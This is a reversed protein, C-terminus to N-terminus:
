QDQATLDEPTERRVAIYSDGGSLMVVPPRGLRNYNSAMSYNYAGTTCVAIHDGRRTDDPLKITPQIIDGSECCRGALDYVAYFPTERDAHLVTYHAGYLCYRPNDTMGGDVVVYYKYGPIRKVSSVTYVTMGADAVISRGPEMLFFPMPIGLEETREKLRAAVSRIRAPIDVCRDTDVYRVGFGGGINLMEVAFGLDKYLQGMFDTMVDISDEFVTEDFVQSGIHCHLGCVKLTPLELAEQVFAFAQGTEMPVGFKVDITGTTVAKYTHPDIGPTIRLLIKQVIGQAAAERSLQELEEPNDVIFYGIRHSVAYRIDADTKGDGHFFIKEAPFGASLATHIEGVSVTDVGMGEEAVIRYIQRFSAAKSAYLPLAKEGFCERFMGTYLRINRRVRDEDLLYLPTGYRQALAPVSQGAFHLMGDAARQINDSIMM